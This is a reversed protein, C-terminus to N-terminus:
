LANRSTCSFLVPVAVIASATVSSQACVRRRRCVEDFASVVFSSYQAAAAAATVSALLV